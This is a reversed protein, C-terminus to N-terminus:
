PLAFGDLERIAATDELPSWYTSANSFGHVNEFIILLVICLNQAKYFSYKLLGTRNYSM